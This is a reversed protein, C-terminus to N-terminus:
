YGLGVSNVAKQINEEAQLMTGTTPIEIKIVISNKKEQIIKAEM